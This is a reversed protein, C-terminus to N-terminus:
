EAATEGVLQWNEDPDYAALRSAIRDTRRGLDREFVVGHHNVIFTMIGSNGYVAPWAVVAFGGTLNEGSLYSKKGGPANPGQSTLMRFHYGHYPRRNAAGSRQSTYGEAAAEAALEGLPSPPEHEGTKWFLGNRTGPESIFRRAYELSGDGDHDKGAYEKQADVVARCAQIASLENRGIRRNILEDKGARTDFRWGNGCRVIPIPMPWDEPGVELTRSGDPAVILANKKSYAEIFDARAQRDAVIDGSSVVEASGPGLVARLRETDDARLATILADRASEPTLFRAGGTACGAAACCVLLVSGNWLLLTRCRTAMHTGTLRM